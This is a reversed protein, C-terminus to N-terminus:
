WDFCCFAGRRRLGLPSPHLTVICHRLTLAFYPCLSLTFPRSLCSPEQVRGVMARWAPVVRVRKQGEWMGEGGNLKPWAFGDDSRVRVGCWHWRQMGDGGQAQMQTGRHICILCTMLMRLRPVRRQPESSVNRDRRCMWAGM